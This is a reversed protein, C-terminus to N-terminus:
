EDDEGPKNNEISSKLKNETLKAEELRSRDAHAKLIDGISTPKPTITIKNDGIKEMTIGDGINLGIPPTKGNTGKGTNDLENVMEIAKMLQSVEKLDLNDMHATDNTALYMSLKRGIKKQWSQVLLLMFEQSRLKSDVVRNKIKEQIENLYERKIGYWNHSDSLYMVTVKTVRLAEAIQSYTSGTLYLDMMRYVQSDTISALGPLGDEKYKQVKVLESASIDTEKITLEKPM